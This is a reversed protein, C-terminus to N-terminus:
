AQALSGAGGTTVVDVTGPVVRNEALNALALRLASDFASLGEVIHVWDGSAVAYSNWELGSAPERCRRLTAGPAIEGAGGADECDLQSDRGRGLRAAADGARRWSYAAGIPRDVDACILAWKRDFLTARASGLMVGQAECLAGQSGIRFSEGQLPGAAASQAPLQAPAALIAAGLAAGVVRFLLSGMGEGLEPAEGIRFAVCVQAMAGATALDSHAARRESGM